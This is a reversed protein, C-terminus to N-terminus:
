HYQLFSMESVCVYMFYLAVNCSTNTCLQSPIVFNIKMANVSQKCITTNRFPM